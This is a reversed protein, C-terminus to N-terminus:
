ERSLYQLLGLLIESRKSEPLEGMLEGWPIKGWASEKTLMDMIGSSRGAQDYAESNTLDHQLAVSALQTFALQRGTFANKDDDNNSNSNNSLQKIIQATFEDRKGDKRTIRMRKNSLEVLKDDDIDIGAKEFQDALDRIDPDAIITNEVFVRPDETIFEALWDVSYKDAM